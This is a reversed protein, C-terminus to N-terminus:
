GCGGGGVIAGEGVGVGGWGGPGGGQRGSEGYM